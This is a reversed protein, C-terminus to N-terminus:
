FLLVSVPFNSIKFDRNQLCQNKAVSKRFAPKHWSMTLIQQPIGFLVRFLNKHQLFFLFFLKQLVIRYRTLM